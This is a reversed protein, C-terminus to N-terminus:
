EIVSASSVTLLPGIMCYTNAQRATGKVHLRKGVVALEPPLREPQYSQEGVILRIPCGDAGTAVLANGEVREVGPPLSETCGIGLVLVGPVIWQLPRKM